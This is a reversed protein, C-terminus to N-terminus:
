LGKSAWSHRNLRITKCCWFVDIQFCRLILPIGHSSDCNSIRSMLSCTVTCITLTYWVGGLGYRSRIDRERLSDVVELCM